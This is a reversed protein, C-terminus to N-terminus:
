GDNSADGSTDQWVVRIEHPPEEEIMERELKLLQVLSGIMPQSIIGDKDLKDGIKNIAQDILEKRSAMRDSGCPPRDGDALHEVETVVSPGRSADHGEVETGNSEPRNGKAKGTEDGAEM